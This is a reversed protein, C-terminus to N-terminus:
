TLVGRIQIEFTATYRQRDTVTPHPLNVPGGVEAVDYVTVGAIARGELAAMASRLDSLLGSAGTETQAFAEITVIPRDSVRTQRTGGTRIVRVFRAPKPNSTPIRTSVPVGISLNDILFQEVDVFAGVNPV